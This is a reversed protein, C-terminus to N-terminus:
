QKYENLLFAVFQIEKEIQLKGLWYCTQVPLLVKHNYGLPFTVGSVIFMDGHYIGRYM